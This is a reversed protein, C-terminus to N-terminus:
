SNGFSFKGRSRSARDRLMPPYYPNARDGSIERMQELQLEGLNRAKPAFARPNPNRDFIERM